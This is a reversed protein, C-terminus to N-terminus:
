HNRTRKQLFILCGAVFLLVLILAGWTLHADPDTPQLTWSLYSAVVEFIVFIGLIITINDFTKERKDEQKQRDQETLIQQVTLRINRQEELQNLKRDVVNNFKESESFSARAKGVGFPLTASLLKDNRFGLFNQVQLHTTRLVGLIESVRITDELTDQKSEIPMSNLTNRCMRDTWYITQYLLFTELINSIREEAVMITDKLDEKFKFDPNKGLVWDVIEPAEIFYVVLNYLQTIFCHRAERLGVPTGYRMVYCRRKQFTFIERDKIVGFPISDFSRVFIVASSNYVVIDKLTFKSDSRLSLIPEALCSNTQNNLHDVLIRMFGRKSTDITFVNPRRGTPYSENWLSYRALMVERLDYGGVENGATLFCSFGEETSIRFRSSKSYEFRTFYTSDSPGMRCGEEPVSENFYDPSSAFSLGLSAIVFETEESSSEKTKSESSNLIGNERVM